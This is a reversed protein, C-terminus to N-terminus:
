SSICRGNNNQSCVPCKRCKECRTDRGTEADLERLSKTINQQHNQIDVNRADAINKLESDIELEMATDVHEVVRSRRWKCYNVLLVCALALALLVAVAMTVVEDLEDFSVDMPHYEIDPVPVLTPLTTNTDYSRNTFEDSSM